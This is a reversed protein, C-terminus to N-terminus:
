HAPLLLKMLNEKDNEVDDRCSFTCNGSPGFSPEFM